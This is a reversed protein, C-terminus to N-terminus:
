ATELSPLEKLLRRDVKGTLGKPLEALFVIREPTKYDALRQRTFNRLEAEDVAARDRRLAVFAVVLEGYLPDPQGVVGAERVAPHQYLAEEVEQPSINSGARVIIQKARGRFWLYGEPDRRALDGTYLWGDRFLAATTDPDNWYGRCVGPGRVLIEGTEGDTVDHGAPDVIRVRARVLPIGMSGERIAQQPNVSVFGGETLGYFEQLPIGFLEKFRSQLSHPVSDGGVLVTRLSRVDRPKRAQEDVIFQLLAPLAMTYACQYHEIADLIAAPDFGPLLVTAIGAYVSSIVMALAAVHMMPTTCLGCGGVGVLGSEGSRANDIFSHHSCQAGKPRATTGSTYMIVATQGPDIVPLAVGTVEHPADDPFASLVTRMSPCSTAATEALAAFAPASFCITAGSHEFVYAIEPAKLRLNVPVAIVGAKFAAFYLVAAEFSNHWHLAMRDGPKFGQHILWCALRTSASDLQQFSIEASGTFLAAKQPHELARTHLLDGLTM